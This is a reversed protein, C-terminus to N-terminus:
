GVRNLCSHDARERVAVVYGVRHGGHAALCSDSDKAM